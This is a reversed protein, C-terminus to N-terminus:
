SIPKMLTKLLLHNTRTTTPPQPSLSRIQHYFHSSSNNYAMCAWSWVAWPFLFSVNDRIVSADLPISKVERVPLNLHQFM